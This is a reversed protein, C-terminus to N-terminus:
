SCTGGDALAAGCGLARKLIPALSDRSNLLGSIVQRLEVHDHAGVDDGLGSEKQFQADTMATDFLQRLADVAAPNATPQAVFMRDHGMAAAMLDLLIASDPGTALQALSPLADYPAGYAVDRLRLLPVLAGQEILDSFSDTSGVAVNVEGSLIAIKREASPYGPVPKLRTGTLANILATNLFTTTKVSNVPVFLPVTAARLAEFSAIGSAKTAFVASQDRGISGILPLTQFRTAADGTDQLVEYLSSGGIMGIIPPDAPAGFLLALTQLSGAGSETDIQAGPLLRQAAASLARLIRDGTSGASIASIMRVHRLAGPADDGRAGTALAAALFALMRRRDLHASLMMDEAGSVQWASTRRLM